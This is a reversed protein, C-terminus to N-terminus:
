TSAAQALVSSGKGEAALGFGCARATHPPQFELELLEAAGSERTM